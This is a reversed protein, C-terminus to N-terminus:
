KAVCSPYNVTKTIKKITGGKTLTFDVMESGAVAADTLTFNVTIPTRANQKDLVADASGQVVSGRSKLTM